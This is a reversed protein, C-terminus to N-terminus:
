GWVSRSRWLGGDDDSAIGKRTHSIASPALICGPHHVLLYVEASALLVSVVADATLWAELFMGLRPKTWRTASRVM